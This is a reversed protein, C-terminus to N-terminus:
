TDQCVTDQKKRECLGLWSKIGELADIIDCFLPTTTFRDRLKQTTPSVTTYNIGYVLGARYEWDSDVDWKSGDGVSKPINEYQWSIGDM